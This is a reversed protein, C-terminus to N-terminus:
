DYKSSTIFNACRRASPKWWFDKLIHMGFIRIDKWWIWITERNEPKSPFYRLGCLILKHIGNLGKNVIACNLDNAMKAWLAIWIGAQYLLMPRMTYISSCEYWPLHHAFHHICGHHVKEHQTKKRSIISNSSIRFFMVYKKDFTFNISTLSLYKKSILSTILPNLM